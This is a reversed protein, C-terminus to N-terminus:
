YSDIAPCKAPLAPKEKGDKIEQIKGKLEELGKDEGASLLVVNNKKKVLGLEFARGPVDLVKKAAGGKGGIIFITAGRALGAHFGVSHAAHLILVRASAVTTVFDTMESGGAKLKLSEPFVAVTGGVSKVYEKFTDDKDAPALAEEAETLPVLVIGEGSGLELPAKPCWPLSAASLAAKLLNLYNPKKAWQLSWGSQDYQMLPPIYVKNGKECPLHGEKSIYLVKDEPIGLLQMMATKHPAPAKFLLKADKEKAQINIWRDVLYPGSEGLWLGADSDDHADVYLYVPPPTGTHCTQGSVKNGFLEQLAPQNVLNFEHGINQNVPANFPGLPRYLTVSRAGPYAPDKSTIDTVDVLAFCSDLTSFQGNPTTITVGQVMADKSDLPLFHL